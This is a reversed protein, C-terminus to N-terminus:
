KRISTMQSTNMAEYHRVSRNGSTEAMVKESLSSNFMCTIATARLSHNTYKTGCDPKKCIDPVINKLTNAGVKQKSFCSKM